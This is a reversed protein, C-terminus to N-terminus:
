DSALFKTVKQSVEKTGGRLISARRGFNEIKHKVWSNPYFTKRKPQAFCILIYNEIHFTLSINSSINFTFTLLSIFYLNVSFFCGDVNKTMVQCSVQYYLEPEGRACNNISDIAEFPLSQLFFTVEM